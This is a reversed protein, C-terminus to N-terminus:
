KKKIKEFFMDSLCYPDFNDPLASLENSENKLYDDLISDWRETLIQRFHAMNRQKRRQHLEGSNKLNQYNLLLCETLKVIGNGSTAVTHQIRDKVDGGGPILSLVNLLDFELKEAGPLDSKNIVFLDGIELIGAKMAQIDDGFGPTLVLTVLDSIRMIDIEAQGVGVTEILILEFGFAALLGIADYIGAAVGGLHGRNAMSRIFVRDDLIHDSMRFRDGLLAGGSKESSPDFALVAVPALKEKFSYLLQNILTSKGAGPAGTIGIIVPQNRIPYFSTVILERLEPQNEVLTLLRALASISGKQFQQIYHDIKPPKYLKM